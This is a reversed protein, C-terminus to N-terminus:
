DTLDYRGEQFMKKDQNESVMNNRKKRAMSEEIEKASDEEKRWNRVSLICWPKTGYKREKEVYVSDFLSKM